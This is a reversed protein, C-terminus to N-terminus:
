KKRDSRSRVDVDGTKEVKVEEKRVDAGVHETEQVTRKGVKVEEKVVAQKEVKVQEERVPIRIEEGPRIAAASASQGAVPHREIVVEEKKVPVDVVQHETHVEKHVRV